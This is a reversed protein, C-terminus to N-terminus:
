GNNTDKGTTNNTNLTILYAAIVAGTDSRKWSASQADILNIGADQMDTIAQLILRAAEAQTTTTGAVLVCTYETKWENWMDWEIDPPTLWAHVQGREPTVAQADLTCRAILPSSAEIQRRMSEMEDVLTWPETM